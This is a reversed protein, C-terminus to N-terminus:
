ESYTTYLYKGFGSFGMMTEMSELETKGESTGLSVLLINMHASIFYVPKWVSFM